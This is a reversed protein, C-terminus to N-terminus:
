SLVYLEVNKTKYASGPFPYPGPIEKDSNREYTKAGIACHWYGSTPADDIITSADYGASNRGLGRWSENFSNKDFALFIEQFGIITTETYPNSSQIWENCNEGNKGWTLLPYCLKFQFTGNVRYDELQNLISYLLADPNEANKTGVEYYSKFLGGSVDHNFVKKYVPFSVM